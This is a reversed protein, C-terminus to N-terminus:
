DEFNIIINNLISEKLEEKLITEEASQLLKNFDGGDTYYNVRKLRICYKQENLNNRIDLIEFEILNIKKLWTLSMLINKNNEKKKSLGLLERLDALMFIPDINKYCFHEQMNALLLYIKLEQENILLDNQIKEITEKPIIRYKQGKNITYIETPKSKRAIFDKNWEKQDDTYIRRGEYKIMGTDELIKWYKKITAEHMNLTKRIKNITFDKQAFFRPKTKGQFNSISVLYVYLRMQNRKIKEEESNIPLGDKKVQMTNTTM